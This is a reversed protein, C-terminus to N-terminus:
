HVPAGGAFCTAASGDDSSRIVGSQDACFAKRGSNSENPTASLQFGTAPPGSCESLAFVFGYKKGSALGSNILMAQRESPQSSGFGDLSSLTCSFGVTPYTAAYTVEATLITRMAAIVTADSGAPQTLPETHTMFTTRTVSQPPAADPTLSTKTVAQPQMKESVAKLFDPDALPVHITFSVENLTWFQAEKKMSFTMQPMFPTREAKGNKYLQFSVAIDDEDGRLADSEVTVEFKDGTKPDQGALMVSGTDFTQVNQGQTPLQSAMLSYQQLTTMAGSKQLAALTAAPLHKVFTGPTKSFFMEMLAQRATQTTAPTQQGRSTGGFLITAALFTIIKRM